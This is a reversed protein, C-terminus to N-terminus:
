KRLYWTLNFNLPQGGDTDSPANLKANAGTLAHHHATGASTNSPSFQGPAVNVNSTGSQYALGFSGVNFTHTHTAEDDTKAAADWSAASKANASGTYTGGRLFPAGTSLDDTTVTKVQPTGGFITFISASSGDCIHFFQSQFYANTGVAVIYESGCDGPGWIWSAGNWQILHGYDYVNILMNADEPQPLLAAIVAGTKQFIGAFYAFYPGGILSGLVNRYTVTQITDYFLFNVDSYGDLDVPKASTVGCMLGAEFWWASNALFFSTTINTGASTALTMTTDTCISIVFPANNIQITLGQWYPSFKPGSQWTVATGSTACAGFANGIRYISDRDTEVFLSGYPMSNAPYQSMIWNHAGAPPAVNVTIQTGSAWATIYYLAGDLAIPFGVWESQFHAAGVGSTWTLTTGSASLVGQSFRDAHVGQVVQGYTQIKPSPVPQKAVQSLLFGPLGMDVSPPRQAAQMAAVSALIGDISAQAQRPQQFAISSGIANDISVGQQKPIMGYVQQADVSNQAKRWLSVLFRYIALWDSISSPGQGNDLGALKPPRPTDIQSM